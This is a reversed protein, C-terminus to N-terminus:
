GKRARDRIAILDKMARDLRGKFRDTGFGDISLLVADHVVPGAISRARITWHYAGDRAVPEIETPWIDAVEALLKRPPVGHLFAIDAELDGM